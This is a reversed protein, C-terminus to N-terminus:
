NKEKKNNSEILAKFHAKHKESNKLGKSIQSNMHNKFEKDTLKKHNAQAAHIAINYEAKGLNKQKKIYDVELNNLEEISSAYVIFIKIFNNKGYKNFADPLMIGSGM